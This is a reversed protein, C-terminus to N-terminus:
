GFGAREGDEKVETSWNPQRHMACGQHVVGVVVIAGLFPGGQKFLIVYGGAWRTVLLGILLDFVAYGHRDLVKAVEREGEKKRKDGEKTM